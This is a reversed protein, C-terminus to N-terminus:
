SLSELARELWEIKKIISERYMERFANEEILFNKCLDNFGKTHLETEDVRYYFSVQDRIHKTIRKVPKYNELDKELYILQGYIFDRDLQISRSRFRDNMNDHNFFYVPETHKNYVNKLYSCLKMYIGEPLIDTCEDILQMAQRLNDM